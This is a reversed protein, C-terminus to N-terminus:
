KVKKRGLTVVDLSTEQTGPSRRPTHKHRPYPAGGSSVVYPTLGEYGGELDQFRFRKLL